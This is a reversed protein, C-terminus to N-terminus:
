TLYKAGMNLIRANTTESSKFSVAPKVQAFNNRSHELLEVIEKGWIPHSFLYGQAIDCGSDRLFELQRETEVGEAVTELGLSKALSIIARCIHDSDADLTVDDVFSKDIKLIDIPFRRLYALCSNGTGFDDISIKLGINKLNYLCEQAAETDEILLCVSL